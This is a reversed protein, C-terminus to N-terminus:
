GIGHAKLLPTLDISWISEVGKVGGGAAASLGNAYYLTKGDPSLHAEIGYVSAPLATRLDLPETWGTGERFVIFLHTKHLSDPLSPRPSSFVLYAEKPGVAPDFDGYPTQSFPLRIPAELVGQRMQARYLHFHQGSDAKMFYLSGDPAISPSFESSDTNILASLRRPEGWGEPTRDVRWLNGGGRRAVQGDYRGDLTDGSPEIPRNSAFIMYRGDTSLSAELDKYRGSFSVVSPPTWAGKEKSSAVIALGSTGTRQFFYVTNGDPTFTGGANVTVTSPVPGPVFITQAKASGIYLLAPLLFLIKM